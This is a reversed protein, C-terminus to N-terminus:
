YRAWDDFTFHEELVPVMWDYYGKESYPYSFYLGASTRNGIFRKEYYVKGDKVGSVVYWNEGAEKYTISPDTKRAIAEEPSEGIYNSGSVVLTVTGDGNQFQCGDGNVPLMPVNLITPVWSHVNFRGNNYRYFDESETTYVIVYGTERGWNATASYLRVQEANVGITACALLIGLVISKKM